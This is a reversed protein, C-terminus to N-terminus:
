EPSKSWTKEVIGDIGINLEEIGGASGLAEIWVESLSINEQRRSGIVAGIWTKGWVVAGSEHDGSGGIQGWNWFGIGPEHSCDTECEESERSAKAM